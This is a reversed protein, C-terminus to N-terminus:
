LSVLTQSQKSVPLYLRAYRFYLDEKTFATHILVEKGLIIKKKPKVTAKKIKKSGDKVLEEKLVHGQISLM